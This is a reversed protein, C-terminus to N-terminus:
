EIKLHEIGSIIVFCDIVFDKGFRDGFDEVGVILRFDALKKAQGLLIKENRARQLVHNHEVEGPASIDSVQWFGEGDLDIVGMGGDADGFQHPQQHIFVLQCPVFGPPDGSVAKCVRVM